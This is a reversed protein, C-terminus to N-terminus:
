YSTPRDNDQSGALVSRCEDIMIGGVLQMRDGALHAFQAAAIPIENFGLARSDAIAAGFYVASVRAWHLAALCMPCPELTCAVIAGELHIRGLEGCAQRLTVIEAHATPDTTALVRNHNAAILNGDLAIACGVPTQGAARAAAAQEIARRMLTEADM